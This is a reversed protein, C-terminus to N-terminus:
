SGIIAWSDGYNIEYKIKVRSEFLAYQEKITDYDLYINLPTGTTGSTHDCYLNRFSYREDIFHDKPYLNIEEKTIIPWNALKEFPLKNKRWYNQYYPVYKKASFLKDVLKKAIWEDWDIVSWSEREIYKDIKYKTKSDYRIYKLHAGKLTAMLCKM